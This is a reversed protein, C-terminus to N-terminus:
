RSEDGLRGEELTASYMASGPILLVTSHLSHLLLTPLAFRPTPRWALWRPLRGDLADRGLRPPLFVPRYRRLLQYATPAFLAMVTLGLLLQIGDPWYALEHPFTGDFRLGLPELGIYM